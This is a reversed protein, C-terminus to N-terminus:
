AQISTLVIRVLAVYHKSRLAAISSRDKSDYNQRDTQRDCAHKIVFGFLASCINASIDWLLAIM